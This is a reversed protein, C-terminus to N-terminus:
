SFPCKERELSICLTYILRMMSAPLLFGQLFGRHIVMALFTIFFWISYVAIRGSENEILGACVMNQFGRCIPTIEFSVYIFSSQPHLHACGHRVTVPKGLIAALENSFRWVLWVQIYRDGKPFPWTVTIYLTVATCLNGKFERSLWYIALTFEVRNVLTKFLCVLKPFHDYLPLWNVSSTIKTELNRTFVNKLTVIQGTLPQM